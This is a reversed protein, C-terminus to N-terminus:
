KKKTTPKKPTKKPADTIIYREQKLLNKAYRDLDKVTKEKKEAM